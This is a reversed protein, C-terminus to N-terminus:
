FNEIRTAMVGKFTEVRDLYTAVPVKEVKGGPYVGEIGKAAAHILFPTGSEVKIIGLHGILDGAARVSKGAAHNEDTVLFLIDGTQLRDLVVKAKPVYRVTGAPYRSTGAEDAVTEGLTGTIETGWYGSRLIDLAYDLHVPTEYDVRGDPKVVDELSAGYFRTGFAFQVAELASSSRGLETTRYFFLICDTQDDDVLRGQKVYGQPDLGCLYTADGSHWFYDAWAAIREGVPLPAFRAMLSDIEAAPRAHPGDVNFRIMKEYLAMLRAQREEERASTAPTPAPSPAEGSTPTQARALAALLLMGALGCARAWARSARVRPQGKEQSRGQTEGRM